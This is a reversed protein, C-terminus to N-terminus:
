GAVLDLSGSRRRRAWGTTMRNGDKGNGAGKAKDENGPMDLRLM